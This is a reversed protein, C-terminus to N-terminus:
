KHDWATRVHGLTFDEHCVAVWQPRFSRWPFGVRVSGLVGYRSAAPLTFSAAKLTSIPNGASSPEGGIGEFLASLVVRGGSRSGSDQMRAYNNGSDLSFSESRPRQPT